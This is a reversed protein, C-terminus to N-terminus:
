EGGRWDEVASSWSCGLSTWSMPQTVVRASVGLLSCEVKQTRRRLGRPAGRVPGMAPSLAWRGRCVVACGSWNEVAAHEADAQDASLRDTM